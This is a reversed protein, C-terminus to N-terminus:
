RQGTAHLGLGGLTPQIHIEDFGAARFYGVLEDPSIRGRTASVIRWLIMSAAFRATAMPQNAVGSLPAQGTARRLSGEANPELAVLRGGQDLVEYAATVASSRDPMLYFFSHALILDFSKAPFPLDYVDAEEFRLNDLDEHRRQHHRRARAIMVDSVDVGVVTSNPLLDALVFASIGPGCGLDLVRMPEVVPSVLDLTAAIQRRWLDQRTMFDYGRAAINFFHQNTIM